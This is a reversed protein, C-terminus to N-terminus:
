PQDQSNPSPPPLSPSTAPDPSPGRDAVQTRRSDGNWGVRPPISRLGRPEPTRARAIAWSQLADTEKTDFRALQPDDLEVSKGQKVFLGVSSPNKRVEARGAYVRLRDLENADVRYVGPHSLAIVTGGVVLEVRNSKALRNITVVASGSILSACSNTLTVDDMRLRSRNGLHIITGPNLLVEARGRETSLTEGARLQRFSDGAKLPGSGEVSVRGQVFYVLGSKASLVKQAPALTAAALMLMALRATPRVM